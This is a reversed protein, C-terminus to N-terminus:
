AAPLSVSQVWAHRGRQELRVSGVAALLRLTRHAAQRSVGAARALDGVPSGEVDLHRLLRRSAPRREVSLRTRDSWRVSGNAAFLRVETGVRHAVVLGSKSLIRVRYAATTYHVGLRNALDSMRLGPDLLIVQLTTERYEQHPSLSALL